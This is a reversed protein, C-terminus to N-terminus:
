GVFSPDGGHGRRAGEDMILGGPTIYDGSDTYCDIGGDVEECNVNDATLDSIPSAVIAAAAANLRAQRESDSPSEQNIEDDHPPLWGEREGVEWVSGETREIRYTRSSQWEDSPFVITADGSRCTMAIAAGNHQDVFDVADNKWSVSSTRINSFDLFQVEVYSPDNRVRVGFGGERDRYIFDGVCANELEAVEEAGDSVPKAERASDASQANGCAVLTVCLAAVTCRM